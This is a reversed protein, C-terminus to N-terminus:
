RIDSAMYNYFLITNLADNFSVNGEKGEDFRYWLKCTVQVHLHESTQKNVDFKYWLKCHLQM